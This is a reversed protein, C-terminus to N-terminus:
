DIEPKGTHLLRRNGNPHKRWFPIISWFLKAGGVVEKVIVRVRVNQVVAIFEYYAVEKLINEWRSNTKQREFGRTKLIGQVTRSLRVVEPALHILKFRVYQDQKGRPKGWDKFKLHRLGKVNFHVDEEFYPCWVSGISEYYEEAEKRARNFKEEESEM